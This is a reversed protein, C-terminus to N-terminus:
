EDGSRADIAALVREAVRRSEGELPQLVVGEGTDFPRCAIWTDKAAQLQPLTRVWSVRVNDAREVIGQRDLTIIECEHYIWPRGDSGDEEYRDGPKMLIPTNRLDKARLTHVPEGPAAPDITAM